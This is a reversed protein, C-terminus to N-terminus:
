MQWGRNVGDIQVGSNMKQKMITKEGGVAARQKSCAQAIGISLKFNGRVSQTKTKRMIVTVKRQLKILETLVPAHGVEKVLLKWTKWNSRRNSISQHRFKWVPNIGANRKEGRVEKRDANLVMVNVKQRKLDSSYFLKSAEALSIEKGQICIFPSVAHPILQGSCGTPCRQRWRKLTFTMNFTREKFVNHISIWIQDTQM